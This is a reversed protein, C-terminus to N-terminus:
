AIFEVQKSVESSLFTEKLFSELSRSLVNELVTFVHMVFCVSQAALPSPIHVINCPIVGDYVSHM